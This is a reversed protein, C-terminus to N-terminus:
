RRGWGRWRRLTTDQELRCRREAKGALWVGGETAIEVIPLRRAWGGSKERRPIVALAVQCYISDTTLRNIHQESQKFANMELAIIVPQALCHRFVKLHTKKLPMDRTNGSVVRNEIFQLISRDVSEQMIRTSETSKKPVKMPNVVIIPRMRLLNNM